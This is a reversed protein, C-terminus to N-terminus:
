SVPVADLWQGSREGSWDQLWGFGSVQPSGVGTPCLRQYRSWVPGQSAEASMWPSIRIQLESHM